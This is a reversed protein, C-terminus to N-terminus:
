ISAEEKEIITISIREGHIPSQITYPTPYYSLVMWGDVYYKGPPVPNGNNDKQNWTARFIERTEGHKITIGTFSATYDKDYSWLYVQRDMGKTICFDAHKSSSFQLYTADPDKMPEGMRHVSGDVTDPGNNRLRVIINM